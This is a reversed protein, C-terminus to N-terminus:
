QDTLQYTGLTRLTEGYRERIRASAAHVQAEHDMGTEAGTAAHGEARHDGASMTSDIASPTTLERESRHPEM